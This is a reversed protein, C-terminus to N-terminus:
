RTSSPRTAAGAGPRAPGSCRRSPPTSRLPEPRSRRPWSTPWGPWAANTARHRGQPRPAPDGGVAPEDAEASVLPYDVFPVVEYDLDRWYYQHEDSKWDAYIEDWTQRQFHPHLVIETLPEGEQQYRFDVSLRMNFDSANHLSAHVATSPFLLVDGAEFDATVWRLEELM